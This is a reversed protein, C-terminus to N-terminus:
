ELTCAKKQCMAQLQAGVRSITWDNLGLMIGMGLTQEKQRETISLM